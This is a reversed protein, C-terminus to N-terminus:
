RSQRAARMLALRVYELVEERLRTHELDMGKAKMVYDRILRTPLPGEAERLAEVCFRAREGPRFWYGRTVPRISTIHALDADPHFLRLTADLLALTERQKALKQEALEIEGALRARKDRLGSIAFAYRM